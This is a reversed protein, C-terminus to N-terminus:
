SMNQGLMGESFVRPSLLVPFFIFLPCREEKRKKVETSTEEKWESVNRIVERNGM